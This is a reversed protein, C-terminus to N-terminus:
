VATCYKLGFFIYTCPCIFLSSAFLQPVRASQQRHVAKCSCSYVMKQQEVCDKTCFTQRSVLGSCSEEEYMLTVTPLENWQCCHSLLGLFAKKDYAYVFCVFLLVVCAFFDLYHVFLFMFTIQVSDHM